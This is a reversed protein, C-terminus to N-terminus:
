LQAVPLTGRLQRGESLTPCQCRVMFSYQAVSTPPPDDAHCCKDVEVPGFINENQATPDVFYIHLLSVATEHGAFCTAEIETASEDECDSLDEGICKLQSIPGEQEKYQVYVQMESDFPNRIKFKISSGDTETIGYIIDKDESTPETGDVVLITVGGHDPCHDSGQSPFDKTCIPPPPPPPATTEPPPLDSCSCPIKIKYLYRQKGGNGWGPCGWDNSVTGTFQGDKPVLVVYAYGDTDCEATQQYTVGPAFNM